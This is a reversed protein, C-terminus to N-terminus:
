FLHVVVVRRGRGCGGRRVALIQELADAFRGHDLQVGVPEAGQGQTLLRQDPMQVAGRNGAAVDKVVLAMSIVELHAIQELGDNGVPGAAVGGGELLNLVIRLQEPNVGAGVVVQGGTLEHQRATRFAERPRGVRCHAGARDHREAVAFREVVQEFPQTRHEEIGLELGRDGGLARRGTLVNQRGAGVVQVDTHRHRIELTRLLAIRQIRPEHFPVASQDFLNVPDVAAVSRLDGRDHAMEFRCGVTRGLRGRPRQAREDGEVPAAFVRIALGVVHGPHLVLLRWDVRDVAEDLHIEVGAADLAGPFREHEVDVALLRRLDPRNGIV